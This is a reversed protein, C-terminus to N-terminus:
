YKDSIRSIMESFAIRENEIEKLLINDVKEIEKANNILKKLSNYCAYFESRTLYRNDVSNEKWGEYIFEKNYFYVKKNILKKFFEDKRAKEFKRGFENAWYNLDIEYALLWYESWMLNDEEELFDLLEKIANTIGRSNVVQKSSIMDLVIIIAISNKSKIVRELYSSSIKINLIKAIWLTWIVEQHNNLQINRELITYIANKIDNRKLSKSNSLFVKIILDSISPYKTWINIMKSQITIWEKERFKHLSIVTIGYRLISIDNYSNFLNIAKNLFLEKDLHIYLKLEEVWEKGYSFPSETIEVKNENLLLEYKGLENRIFSIISQIEYSDKTFIYYDDVFRRCKINKFREQIKNDVTCLIIESVIRSIANGVLIGNTQRYNMAQMCKDIRDGPLNDKGKSKKAVQITHMAWPISHTYISDFFSSIDLKIQYLNDQYLKEIELRTESVNYTKKCYPQDDKAKGHIPKSLSVESKDLVRFIDKNNEIVCDVAKVYHYINPISFKRRANTNKFGSFKCPISYPINNSNVWGRIEKINKVVMDTTFCAPLEVPFYENRILNELKFM